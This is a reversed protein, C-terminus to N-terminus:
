RAGAQRALWAPCTADHRVDALMAPAHEVLVMTVDSDCDPCRATERADKICGVCFQTPRYALRTHCL